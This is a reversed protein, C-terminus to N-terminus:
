RLKYFAYAGLMLFGIQAVLLPLFDGWEYEIENIWDTRIEIM